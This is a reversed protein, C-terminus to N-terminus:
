RTTRARRTLGSRRRRALLLGLALGLASLGGGNTAACGGAIDDNADDGGTPDDASPDDPDIPDVPGGEVGNVRVVIDGDAPGGGWPADGFWTVQEHVLSFTQEYAGAEPM